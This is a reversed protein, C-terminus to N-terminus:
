VGGNWNLMVEGLEAMPTMNEEGSCAYVLPVCEERYDGCADRWFNELLKGCLISM